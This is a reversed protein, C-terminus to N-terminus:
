WRGMGVGHHPVLRDSASNTLDEKFTGLINSFNPTGSATGTSEYQAISAVIRYQVAFRQVAHLIVNDLATFSNTPTWSPTQGNSSAHVGILVEGAQATTGTLGSSVDVDVVTDQSATQDLPSAAIDSFEACCARMDGNGGPGVTITINQGNTLATALRSYYIYVSRLRADDDKIALSWGNGASDAVSQLDDGVDRVLLFGLVALNGRALGAAPVALNLTGSALAEDAFSRVLSIAM